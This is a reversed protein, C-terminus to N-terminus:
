SSMKKLLLTSVYGLVAEKVWCRLLPIEKNEQLLIMLWCLLWRQWLVFFRRWWNLAVFIVWDHLRWISRHILWNIMWDDFEHFKQCYSHTQGWRYRFPHFLLERSQSRAQHHSEKGWIQFTFQISDSYCSRGPLTCIRLSFMQSVKFPKFDSTDSTM